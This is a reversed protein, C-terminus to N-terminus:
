TRWSSSSVAMRRHPTVSRALTRPSKDYRFVLSSSCIKGLGCFLDQNAPSRDRNYYLM